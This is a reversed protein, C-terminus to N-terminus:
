AGSALEAIAELNGAQLNAIRKWVAREQLSTLLLPASPENQLQQRWLIGLWSEWDHIQPTPWAMKGSARQVEGYVRRLSRAARANATVVVGGRQLCALM